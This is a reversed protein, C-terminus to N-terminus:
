REREEARERQGLRGSAPSLRGAPRAGRASPEVAPRERQGDPGPDFLGAPEAMEPRDQTTTSRDPPTPRYGPVVARRGELLGSLLLREPDTLRDAGEPGHNPLSHLLEADLLGHADLWARMAVPDHNM